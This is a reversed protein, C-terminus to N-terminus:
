KKYRGDVLIMDVAGNNFIQGNKKLFQYTFRGFGAVSHTAVIDANSGNSSYFNMHNLDASGRIQFTLNCKRCKAKIIWASRLRLM